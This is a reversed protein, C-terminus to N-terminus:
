LNVDFFLRCVGRWRRLAETYYDAFNMRSLKLLDELALIALWARTVVAEVPEPVLVRLSRELVEATERSEGENPISDLLLAAFDEGPWGPHVHEGDLLVPEGASSQAIHRWGSSGHCAVIPLSNELDGAEMIAELVRLARSAESKSLSAQDSQIRLELSRRVLRLSFHRGIDWPIASTRLSQRAGQYANEVEKWSADKWDLDMKRLWSVKLPYSYLRRYLLRAIKLGEEESAKSFKPLWPRLLLCRREDAAELPAFGPLQAALMETRFRDKGSRFLPHRRFPDWLPRSEIRSAPWKVIWSTARHKVHWFMSSDSLNPLQLCRNNEAGTFRQFFKKVVETSPERKLFPYHPPLRRQFRPKSMRLSFAKAQEPLQTNAVAADYIKFHTRTFKWEDLAKIAECKAKDGLVSRLLPQKVFYEMCQSLREVSGFTVLFGSHWDQVLDKAFGHPTAIVPVGESMAELIVRGGPEYKSHTVLVLARTLVASIGTSDLYGWWVLKGEAEQEVLFSNGISERMTQIESPSGGILWLPPCDPKDSLQSWAEIIQPIGKNMAIRGIYM